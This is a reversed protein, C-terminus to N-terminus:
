AWFKKRRRGFEAGGLLGAAGGGLAAAPVGHVAIAAGVAPHGRGSNYGGGWGRAGGGFFGGVLGLLGFVVEPGSHEEHTFKHLAQHLTLHGVREGASM